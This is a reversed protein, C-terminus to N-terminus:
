APGHTLRPMTYPRNPRNFAKLLNHAAVVLFNADGEDKITMASNSTKRSLSPSPVFCRQTQNFVACSDLPNKKDEPCHVAVDGDHDEKMGYGTSAATLKRM